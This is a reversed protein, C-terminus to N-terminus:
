GARIVRDSRLDRIATPRRDPGIRGPVLYDVGTGFYRRVQYIERAERCGGRNASTSVLPGGFAECLSAVVPHASVRVAVTDHEGHLWAPIVGCHPVLWTTPGPWSLQLRSKQVGSLEDFLPQLQAMDAAVLILGKSRPRQKLTLLREVATEDFPDCGLGWVAETPYAVLGGQRIVAAAKALRFATMSLDAGCNTRCHRTRTWFRRHM